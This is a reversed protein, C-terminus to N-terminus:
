GAPNRWQRLRHGLSHPFLCELCFLPNKLVCVLKYIDDNADDLWVVGAPRLTNFAPQYASPELGRPDGRFFGNVKVETNTKLDSELVMFVVSPADLPDIAHSKYM